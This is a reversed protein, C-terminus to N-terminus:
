SEKSNQSVPNAKQEPIPSENQDSQALVISEGKGSQALGTSENKGSQALGTSENKGSQALGAAGAIATGALGLGASWKAPDDADPAFLVCVGIIGGILAILIPTLSNILEPTISKM